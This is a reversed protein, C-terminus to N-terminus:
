IDGKGQQLSDILQAAKELDAPTNINTFWVGAGPYAKETIELYGTNMEKLIQALKYAGQEVMRSFVPLARRHYIGVLPEPYGNWHPILVDEGRYHELLERLLSVPLFPLDCPIILMSEETISELMTIIGGAPGIQTIKDTFVPPGFRQYSPNNSSIYPDLSLSNLKELQHEALTKGNLLMLGKDRGMRSSAGGAM